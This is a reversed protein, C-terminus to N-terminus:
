VRASSTVGYYHQIGLDGSFLAEVPSHPTKKNSLVESKGGVSGVWGM